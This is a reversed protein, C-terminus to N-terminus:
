DKDSNRKIRTRYLFALILAATLLVLIVIYYNFPDDTKPQMKIGKKNATKSSASNKKTNSKNSPPVTEKDDTKKKPTIIEKEKPMDKLTNTVVFGDQANGTLSVDYGTIEEEEVTYVIEKGNKYKDLDTFTYQWKNEDNLDVSDITTGDALLNITVKDAKKGEWIKTVPVSVKDCITNTIIFGNEATGSKESAYGEVHMEEIDYAIESGDSIEYKPLDSFTYKWNNDATLEAEKVPVGDATLRIIVHDAPDGIWHKEVPIDISILKNEIVKIAIKDSGFDDASVIVPENILEHMYPAKLEILEYEDLLLGDLSGEGAENTTITGAITGNSKRVVQFVAGSLANGNESEKKIKIGYVYGAASGGALYYTAIGTTSHVINGGEGSLIAKNEVIEGDALDYSAVAQYRVNIGEDASIDGLEARFGTDGEKWTVNCQDTINKSEKLEWDGHVAVWRGKRITLSDRQISIGATQLYDELVANRINERTMNININFTLTRRDDSKWQWGSKAITNATPVPIGEFHIYGGFVTVGNVDFNLPITEEGDVNKRDIQVYVFFDGTVNSHNDVYDTYTITITKSEGDIVANAVVQNGDSSMIEFSATQNFKLKDPLTITTTDGSHVQGNPLSFEANLRFVQWQSVDGIPGTGDQLLAEIKTIVDGHETRTAGKTNATKKLVSEFDSAAKEDNVEKPKGSKEESSIENLGKKNAVANKSLDDTDENGQSNEIIGCEPDSIVDECVESKEYAAKANDVSKEEDSEKASTFTSCCFVSLCMLISTMVAIAKKANERSNM